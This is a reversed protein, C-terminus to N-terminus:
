INSIYKKVGELGKVLIEKYMSYEELDEITYERGERTSDTALKCIFLGTFAQYPDIPPERKGAFAELVSLDEIYLPEERRVNVKVEHMNDYIVLEQTMYNLFAVGRSGTLYMIRQKFPTVRNVELSSFGKDYGLIILAYDTLRSVINELTYTRITIPLKSYVTLSNDIEHIGLDYIVSTNKVRAVFPGVRRSIMTLIEGLWGDRIHRHLEMIAPNFREIHGVSIWLDNEEALKIVRYAEDINSTMPKEVLFGYVDRDVLKEISQYHYETPTAIVALDISGRPIEDISRLPEGSYKRAIAKAREYNIDVLYKIDILDPNETKIRHLVRTHASGMYGTGIVAVEIM